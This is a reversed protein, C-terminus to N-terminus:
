QFFGLGNKKGQKNTLSKEEKRGREFTLRVIM